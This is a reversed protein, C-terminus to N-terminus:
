TYTIPSERKLTDTSILFGKKLGLIYLVMIKARATMYEIKIQYFDNSHIKSDYQAFKPM